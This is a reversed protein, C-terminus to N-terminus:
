TVGRFLFAQAPGGSTQIKEPVYHSEWARLKGMEPLSVDILDGKVQNAYGAKLMTPWTDGKFKVAAEFYGLAIAPTMVKGHKEGLAQELIGEKKLTAYLFVKM